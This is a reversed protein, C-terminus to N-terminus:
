HEVGQSLFINKEVKLATEAKRREKTAFSAHRDKIQRCIRNELQYQIYQLMEGAMSTCRVMFMVEDLTSILNWAADCKTEKYSSLASTRGKWKKFFKHTCLVIIKQTSRATQNM